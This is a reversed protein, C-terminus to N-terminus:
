DTKRKNVIRASQILTTIYQILSSGGEYEINTLLWNLFEHQPDTLKNGLKM